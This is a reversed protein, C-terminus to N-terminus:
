IEEKSEIITGGECCEMCEDEGSDQVAFILRGEAERVGTFLANSNAAM